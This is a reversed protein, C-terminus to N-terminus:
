NYQAEILEFNPERVVYIFVRGLFYSIVALSCMGTGVFDVRVVSYECFGVKDCDQREGFFIDSNV